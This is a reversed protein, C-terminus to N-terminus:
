SNNTATSSTPLSIWNNPSSSNVTTNPMPPTSELSPYKQWDMEDNNSATASLTITATTTNQGPNWPQQYVFAVTTVQPADYFRPDVNFVFIASGGSGVLKNNSGTAYRYDQLSLLDHDYTQVYWQYGTTGNAPLSIQITDQNSSLQINQSINDAYGIIVMGSLVLSSLYKLM